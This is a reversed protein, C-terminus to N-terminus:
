QVAHLIVVIQAFLLFFYSFDSAAVMNKEYSQVTKYFLTPQRADKCCALLVM